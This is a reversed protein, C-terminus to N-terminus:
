EHLADIGKDITEIAWLTWGNPYTGKIPTQEVPIHGPVFSRGVHGMTLQRLAVGFEFRKDGPAVKEWICNVQFQNYRMSQGHAPMGLFHLSVRPDMEFNKSTHGPWIELGALCRLDIKETDEYFELIANIRTRIAQTRVDEPADEKIDTQERIVQFKELYYDLYEEKAVFGTGKTAINASFLSGKPNNTVVVPLHAGFGGGGHHQPQEAGEIRALMRRLMATRQGINWSVFQESLEQVPYTQKTGEVDFSFSLPEQQKTIHM